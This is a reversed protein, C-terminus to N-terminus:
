CSLNTTKILKLIQGCSPSMSKPSTNFLIRYLKDVRPLHSLPSFFFMTYPGSNLDESEVYFDSTDWLHPMRHNWHKCETIRTNRGPFLLCLHCLLHLECALRAYSCSSSQRLCSPFHLSVGSITRQWPQWPRHWGAGSVCMIWVCMTYMQLWVPACTILYVCYVYTCECWVSVCCLPWNALGFAKTSVLHSKM